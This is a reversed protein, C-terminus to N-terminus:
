PSKKDSLVKIVEDKKDFEGPGNTKVKRIVGEEDILFRSRKAPRFLVSGKPDNDLVDYAKATMSQTDSLLPFPFTHSEAFAAQCSWAM